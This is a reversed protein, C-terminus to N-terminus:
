AEYIIGNIPDLQHAIHRQNSSILAEMFKAFASQHGRKILELVETRQTSPNKNSKIREADMQTIAYYDKGDIDYPERLYDILEPEILITEVLYTHNDVLVKKDKELM